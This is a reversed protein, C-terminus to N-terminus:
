DAKHSSPEVDSPQSTGDTDGKADTVDEDVGDGAAVEAATAAADDESGEGEADPLEADLPETSAPKAPLAPLPRGWAFYGYIATIFILVYGLLLAFLPQTAGSILPQITTLAALGAGGIAAMLWAWRQGFGIGIYASAVLSVLFANIWATLFISNDLQGLTGFLSQPRTLAEGWQLVTVVLTLLLLGIFGGWSFGSAPIRRTFRGQLPFRSFAYLGICAAAVQPLAGTLLWYNNQGPYLAAFLPNAFFGLLIFWWGLDNRRALFIQGVALMLTSVMTLLLLNAPITGAEQNTLTM